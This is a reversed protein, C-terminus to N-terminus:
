KVVKLRGFLSTNSGKSVSVEVKEMGNSQDTVTVGTGGPIALSTWGSLNTGYEFTQTTDAASASRRYFTFVLNAGSADVAPLIVPNSVSPDGDKLVFELLNSIGDNDPDGSLTKDSLNPWTSEIWSLFPDSIPGNTVTLSGTGTIFGGSNAATYTGPSMAVGGLTLEDITDSGSFNLQLTAGTDVIVDAGDALNSNSTGNGLTLTGALITTNGTYANSASLTMSGTGSKVVAGAAAALRDHVPGSVILSSDSSVNFNQSGPLALEASITSTEGGEAYVASAIIFHGWDSNPPHTGTVSGGLLTLGSVISNAVTNTALTGGNQVIIPGATRGNFWPNSAGTAWPVTAFLTAGSAINVQGLTIYQSNLEVTGSQIDLSNLNHNYIGAFNDGSGAYLKLTGGGTKTVGGYSALKSNITATTGTEVAITSGNLSDLTLTRSAGTITYDLTSFTLNGISRNSDLTITTGTAGIFSATKDQGAAVGGNQWNAQTGWNGSETATWIGDNALVVLSGTGTLIGPHTTANFTGSGQDVGDIVLSGVEDSGSYDLQLVSDVAVVVPSGNDLNSSSTGNGVILTGQNVTTTGSYSNAGRLTMTGAGNKTIGMGSSAETVAATIRLDEAADGNAVNFLIGTYGNDARMRIRGAIVSSNASALTNVNVRNWELQPGVPDSTGGNSQLLGGTMTLGDAIGWVHIASASTITGGNISVSSLEGKYGLGTGDGTIEVVGAPQVTLSGRIRGDGGSADLHLKGQNVTTPGTYTNIQTLKLTGAGTKILGYSGGDQYFGSVTLTDAEVAVTTDSRLCYGAGGGPANTFANNGSISRIAGAGGVGAGWVHFHEDLSIGGQLALTAGDGVFSMTTGNHGGVGLATSSTALVTGANISLQGSFSNAGSLVLTGSGAKNIGGNTTIQNHIVGSYNLQSGADVTFTRTWNLATDASVTSIANGGATVDSKIHLAGWDANSVTSIITGGNLFLGNKITQALNLISWTGGQNITISGVSNGNWESSTTWNQNTVFTAGNNITLPGYGLTHIGNDQASRSATFTGGNLTIGGSSSNWGTVTMAGDGSKTLAGARISGTFNLASGEDVTINGNDLNVQQASITSVTNGTVTTADDFTWGGWTGSPRIGGLEGGALTLNHIHSHGHMTLHGGANIRTSDIAWYRNDGGNGNVFVSGLGNITVAGAGSIDGAVSDSLTLLGNNFSYSSANWSVGGNVTIVSSMPANTAVELFPSLPSNFHMQSGAGGIIAFGHFNAANDVLSQFGSSGISWTVSTDSPYSGTANTADTIPTAGPIGSGYTASWGGNATAIYSDSVGGGWNANTNQLTVSAPSLVTLGSLRSLNFHMYQGDGASGRWYLRGGDNVGANFTGSGGLYDVWDSALMRVTGTGSFDLTEAHISGSVLCTALVFHLYPNRVGKKLQPKM